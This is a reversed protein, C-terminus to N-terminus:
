VARAKRCMADLQIAEQILQVANNEVMEYNRHTNYNRKVQEWIHLLGEGCSKLEDETEQFEEFVVAFAEHDSAFQPFHENAEKLEQEILSHIIKKDTM